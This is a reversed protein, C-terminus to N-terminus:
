IGDEESIPSKLSPKPILVKQLSNDKRDQAANDWIRAPSIHVLHFSIDKKGQGVYRFFRVHKM